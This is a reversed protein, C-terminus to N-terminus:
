ALVYLSLLVDGQPLKVARETKGVLTIEVAENSAQFALTTNFLNFGQELFDRSLHIMVDNPLRTVTGFQLKVFKNAPITDGSLLKGADAGSLSVVRCGYVDLHTKDASV